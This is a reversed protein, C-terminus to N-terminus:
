RLPPGEAHSGVVGNMLLWMRWPAMGRMEEDLYHLRSHPPFIPVPSVARLFACLENRTQESTLQYSYGRTPQSDHTWCM